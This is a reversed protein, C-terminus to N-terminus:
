KLLLRFHEANALSVGCAVIRTKNGTQREVYRTRSIVVEYTLGVESGVMQVEDAILLGLTQVDMVPYDIYRHEKGKYFQVGMIVMHSVMPPSWATDQGLRNALPICTGYCIFLLKGQICGFGSYCWVRCWRIPDEIDSRSCLM